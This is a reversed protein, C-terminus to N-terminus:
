DWPPPDIIKTTMDGFRKSMRDFSAPGLLELDVPWAGTALHIPTDGIMSALVKPDAHAVNIVAASPDAFHASTLTAGGDLAAILAEALDAVWFGLHQVGFGRERVFEAHIGNGELVQIVEITMGGFRGYAIVLRSPELHPALPGPPPKVYEFTEYDGGLMSQYEAATKVADEVVMGVHFGAADFKATM